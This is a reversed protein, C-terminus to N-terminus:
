INSNCKKNELEKLQKCVEVVHAYIEPVTWKKGGTKCFQPYLEDFGYYDNFHCYDWGIFWGNLTENGINLCNASYTIGGHVDIDGFEDFKQGYHAYDTPIEVYATPHTGLSMIYYNFGDCNGTELLEHECKAKYVMEKNM